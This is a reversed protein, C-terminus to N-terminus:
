AAASISGDYHLFLVTVSAKSPCVRVRTGFSSLHCSMMLTPVGVSSIMGPAPFRQFKCCRVGPWLCPRVACYVAVRSPLHAPAVERGCIPMQCTTQAVMAVVFWSCRRCLNRPVGRTLWLTLVSPSSLRACGRILKAALRGPM